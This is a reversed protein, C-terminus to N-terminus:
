FWFGQASFNSYLVPVMSVNNDSHLQPTITSEFCDVIIVGYGSRLVIAKTAPPLTNTKNTASLVKATLTSLSVAAFRFRFIDLM